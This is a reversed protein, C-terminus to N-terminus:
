SMLSGGGLLCYRRDQFQSQHGDRRETGSLLQVVAGIFASIPHSFVLFDNVFVYYFFCHNEIKLPNGRSSAFKLSSGGGLLCYCRDQFKSQHGDRSETGSLLQVVAGIFASIANVFVYCFFRVTRFDIKSCVEQKEATRGKRVEARERDNGGM